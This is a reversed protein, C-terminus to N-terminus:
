RHARRAVLFATLAAVAVLMPIQAVLKVLNDVIGNGMVVDIVVSIFIVVGLASLAALSGHALPADPRARGAVRGGLAMGALILVYFALPWNSDDSFDVIADVIAYAVLSVLSVGLAVAGAVLVTQRDVHVGLAKM